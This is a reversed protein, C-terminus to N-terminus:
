FNFTERGRKIAFNRTLHCWGTRGRTLLTWGIMTTGKFCDIMGPRLLCLAMRVCLAGWLEFMIVREEEVAILTGMTLGSGNVKKNRVKRYVTQGNTTQLVGRVIVWILWRKGVFSGVYQIGKFGTHHNLRKMRKLGVKAWEKEWWRRRRRRRCDSSM